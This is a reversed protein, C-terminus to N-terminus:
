LESSKIPPPAQTIPKPNPTMLMMKILKRTPPYGGLTTVHAVPVFGHIKVSHRQYIKEIEAQAHKFVARVAQKPSKPGRGDPKRLFNFLGEIILGHTHDLSSHRDGFREILSWSVPNIRKLADFVYPFVMRYIRQYKEYDGIRFEMKSGELFVTGFMALVHPPIRQSVFANQGNLQETTELVRAGALRDKKPMEVQIRLRVKKPGIWLGKEGTSQRVCLYLLLKPGKRWKRRLMENLAKIDLKDHPPM